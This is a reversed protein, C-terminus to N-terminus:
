KKKTKTPPDYAGGLNVIDIEHDSLLPSRVSPIIIGPATNVSSEIKLPPLRPPPLNARSGVFKIMPTYNMKISTQAGRLM